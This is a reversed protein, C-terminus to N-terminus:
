GRIVESFIETIRDAVSKGMTDFLEVRKRSECSGNRFVHVGDSHWFFTNGSFPEMRLYVSPGGCTIGINWGIVDGDHSLAYEHWLQEDLWDLFGVEFDYNQFKPLMEETDLDMLHSPHNMGFRIADADIEDKSWVKIEGSDDRYGFGDLLRDLFLVLDDAEKVIDVNENSGGDIM